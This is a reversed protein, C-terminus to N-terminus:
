SVVISVGDVRDADIENSAQIAISQTTGAATLTAGVAAGVPAGSSDYFTASLRKSRCGAPIYSLEIGSVSYGSDTVDFATTYAFTMGSGCSAIVDSGAALGTTGSGLSAALGYAGAFAAFAALAALVLKAPRTGYLIKRRRAAM